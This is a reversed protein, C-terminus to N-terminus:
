KIKLNIEYKEDLLIYELNNELVQKLNEINEKTLKSFYVQINSKNNDKIKNLLPESMDILKVKNNLYNNLYVNGEEPGGNEKEERILSALIEVLKDREYPQGTYFWHKLSDEQYSGHTVLLLM